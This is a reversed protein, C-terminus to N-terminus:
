DLPLPAEFVLELRDVEDRRTGSRELRLKAVLALSADNAPSVSARLAVAGSGAAGAALARAGEEAYGRRRFGPEVTYGIEVLGREDPPRHFGAHGVVVREPGPRVIARALWPWAGPEAELQRLWLGAVDEHGQMWTEPVSAELTSGIASRDGDVVARLVPVSLSVLELRDSRLVWPLAPPAIATM